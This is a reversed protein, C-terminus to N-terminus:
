PDLMAMLQATHLYCVCGLDQTTTATTYALLWLQLKVGLRPIEMHQM